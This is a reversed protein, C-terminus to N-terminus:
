EGAKIIEELLADLSIEEEPGNEAVYRSVTPMDGIDPEIEPEWERLEGFENYRRPTVAPETEEVADLQFLADEAQPEQASATQDQPQSAESHQASQVPTEKEASNGASASAAQTDYGALLEDIERMQEEVSLPAHDPIAPAESGGYVPAEEIQPAKERTVPQQAPAASADQESRARIFEDFAREADHESVSKAQAFADPDPESGDPTSVAQEARGSAAADDAFIFDSYPVPQEAPEAQAAAEVANLDALVDDIVKKAEMQAAIDAEASDSSEDAEDPFPNKEAMRGFDGTPESVAPAAYDVPAAASLPEPELRSSTSFGPDTHVTFFDDFAREADARTLDESQGTQTAAPEEAEPAIAQPAPAEEQAPEQPPESEDAATNEFGAGAAPASGEPGQAEAPDVEDQARMGSPKLDNDYLENLVHEAEEAQEAAVPENPIEAPEPAPKEDETNAPFETTPFLADFMHEAQSQTLHCGDARVIFAGDGNADDPTEAEGPQPYEGRRQTENTGNAIADPEIAGQRADGNEEAPNDPKDEPMPRNQIRYINRMLLAPDGSPDPLSVDSLAGVSKYFAEGDTRNEVPEIKSKKVFEAFRAASIQLESANHELMANFLEVMEEYERKIIEADRLMRESEAKATIMIEKARREAEARLADSAAAADELLANAEQMANDRTQKADAKAQETIREANDKASQLTDLIGQERARYGEVLQDMTDIRTELLAIREFREELLLKMERRKM